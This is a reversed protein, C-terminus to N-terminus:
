FRPYSVFTKGRNEVLSRENLLVDAVTLSSLLPIGLLLLTKM